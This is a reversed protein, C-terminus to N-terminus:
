WTRVPGTDVHVFGSRPYYGVGGVRLDLALQRLGRLNYDPLRIDVAMGKIHFSNRAVGRNTRALRANTAPSRYGCVVHLPATTDTRSQIQHLLDLLAPDIETVEGTRWDRLIHNLRARADPNYWGDVWYEATLREASHTNYLCLSRRGGTGAFLTRPAAAAGVAAAAAHTLFRRRDFLSTAGGETGAM